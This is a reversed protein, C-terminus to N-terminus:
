QVSHLKRAPSAEGDSQERQAELQQRLEAIQRALEQLRQKAARADEAIRELEIALPGRHM